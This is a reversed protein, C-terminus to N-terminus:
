SPPERPAVLRFGEPGHVVSRSRWAPFTHSIVAKIVATIVFVAAGLSLICVCVVFTLAHISAAVPEPRESLMTAMPALLVPPRQVSSGPEASRFAEIWDVETRLKWVERIVYGIGLVLVALILGNLGPNQEFASALNGFLTAIVLSVAFLFFAMRVLYRTPRTM